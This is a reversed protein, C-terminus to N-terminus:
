MFDNVILLRQGSLYLIWYKISFQDTIYIYIRVLMVSDWAPVCVRVFVLAQYSFGSTENLTDQGNGHFSKLAWHTNDIFRKRTQTDIIYWTVLALYNLGDISIPIAAALRSNPFLPIFVQLSLMFSDGRLTTSTIHNRCITALVLPTTSALRPIHLYFSFGMAHSLAMTNRTSVSETRSLVRLNCCWIPIWQRRQVPSLRPVAM